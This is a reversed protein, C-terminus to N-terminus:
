LTVQQDGAKLTLQGDAMSWTATETTQSDDMTMTLQGDVTATYRFTRHSRGIAINDNLLYYIDTSGTGDSALETMRLAKSDGWLTQTTGTVDATWRGEIQATDDQLASNDDNSCAALTLITVVALMWNFNKKMATKKIKFM